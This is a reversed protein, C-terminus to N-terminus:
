KTLVKKNWSRKHCKPCKMYRTRNVHMAWLVSPFTPIYKYHCKCFEYYGAVQELKLAFTVGIIFPIFGGIILVIRLWDPMELFSVLFVNVLLILSFLVGIVIELTLLKQDAKEIQRKMELLNEELKKENSKMDVVEGSFLDNITIGLIKCLDVMNSVDPLSVGNEWESIAGDSIGLMEALKSQTINKEKRKSSIFKGIKIQEM